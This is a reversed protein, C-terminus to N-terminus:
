LTFYQIHPVGDIILPTADDMEERFAAITIEGVLNATTCKNLEEIFAEKDVIREHYFEEDVYLHIDGEKLRRGLLDKDCAALVIDEGRKYVRIAIM